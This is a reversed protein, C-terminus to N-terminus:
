AIKVGKYYLGDNTVRFVEEGDSNLIRVGDIKNGEEDYETIRWNNDLIIDGTYLNVIYANAWRLSPKGIDGTNDAEPTASLLNKLNRSSDIVETGGIKLSAFDGSGKFWADGNNKMYFVETGGIQLSVKSSPATDLMIHQILAEYDTSASGDWYRSRLILKPSNILTNSDDASTIPTLRILTDTFILLKGTGRLTIDINGGDYIVLGSDSIPNRLSVDDGGSLRLIERLTGGSDYWAIASNNPMEIRTLNKLVRSSDIVETGGISLSPHDSHSLPAYQTDLIEKITPLAVRSKVAGQYYVRVTTSSGNSEYRAYLKFVIRSGEALEYDSSLILSIVIDRRSDIRDSVSSQAILIETGDSKREYIEFFLRVPINGSVREAKLHMTYVGLKLRPIGDVPAIWGAIYYDGASNQSTEVYAESLNPPTLQMAKYSPVDSDADDLLYYNIGLGTVSLDTYNKTSADSPEEPEGLNRIKFGLWDKDTDIEIKSLRPAPVRIIASSTRIVM